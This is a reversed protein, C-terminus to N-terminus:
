RKKGKYRNRTVITIRIQPIRQSTENHEKFCKLNKFNKQDKAMNVENRSIRHM